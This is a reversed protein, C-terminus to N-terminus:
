LKLPSAQLTHVKWRPFDRKFESVARRWRRQSVWVLRGDTLRIGFSKHRPDIINGPQYIFAQQIAKHAPVRVLPKPIVLKARRARRRRLITEDWLLMDAAVDKDTNNRIVLYAFKELPWPSPAASYAICFNLTVRNKYLRNWGFKAGGLLLKFFGLSLVIEIFRERM